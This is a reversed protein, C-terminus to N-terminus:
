SRERRMGPLGEIIKRLEKRSRHARVKVGVVSWGLLRAAEKVSLGELHVLTVVMRNEPSLRALAYDLVEAAERGAVEREFAERSGAALISDLWEAHEDGLAGFPVERRRHKERWFDYCCCVAIRALWAKFPGSGSFTGLSQYARLFAENAIEEVEEPPLHRSVIGFVLRRYRGVLIEFANVDGAAIRGIIEEDPSRDPMVDAVASRRRRLSTELYM